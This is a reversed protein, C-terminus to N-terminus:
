LTLQSPLLEGRLRLDRMFKIYAKITERKGLRRVDEYTVKTAADVTVGIGLIVPHLESLSERDKPTM